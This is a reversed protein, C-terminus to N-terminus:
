PAEFGDAYIGAVDLPSSESRSFAHRLSGLYEAFVTVVGGTSFRISCSFEAATTSIPAPSHAECREGTSAMFRVRGDIPASSASVQARLTVASGVVAAAPGGAIQTTTAVGPRHLVMRNSAPQTVVLQHREPDYRFTQAQGDGAVLGLVSHNSTIPGVVTGDPLGLTVAGAGTVGAQTWFPSRAGFFGNGLDVVPGDGVRDGVQQGVVANQASLQGQLGDIGSGLAVAGRGQGWAHSTVVYNGNSLAIPPRHGLQENAASGMLSNVASITGVIGQTGSGFTIAGVGTVAAHDLFPSLVLYNGSALAVLNSGVLDQHHSGVLSNEITVFGSVGSVGSGWTAAGSDQTSGRDWFMSGVVYNGNTLAIAGPYGIQDGSNNGVLSNNPTIIGTIGHEGSGLTAAGADWLSGHDWRDSIVLYNGNRLPLVGGGGVRDHNRSGVLSNDATVAGRVGIAGSGFTVAGASLVNGHNWNPSIVVYNGNDLARVWRGVQDGELTSRGQTGVLSNDASVIGTIGTTGSGWTAAGADIAAEHDWQPSQVVYHGDRLATVGASGLLDETRGGILSNAASVPGQIGVDGRAFTVAGVNRINGHDWAPSAVVYNGNRLVTVYGVSDNERVGVLSNQPSVVGRVGLTGSGFTVAGANRINGHDWNRSTVVYNGNALVTVGEAGIKDDASSGVLSNEPTITGRVGVIGSGFTVAGADVVDGHDWSSSGVVYNGQSLVTIGYFGVSDNERTGVLSNEASVPGHVGHTASGFTVAGADVADGNRWFSSRVVFNGSPLVTIGGSGVLDSAQSGHLTSVLTGDPRFVHVAGVDVVGNLDFGVDIVVINGNPLITLPTQSFPNGFSGSGAPGPIVVQAAQLPTWGLLVVLAAMWPRRSRSSRYLFPLPRRQM